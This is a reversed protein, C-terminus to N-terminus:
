AAAMLSNFLCCSCFSESASCAWAECCSRSLTSRSDLSLSKCCCSAESWSSLLFFSSSLAVSIWASRSSTEASPAARCPARSFASASRRLCCSSSRWSSREWTSASACSSACRWSCAWSSSLSRRPKCLSAAVEAPARWRSSSASRCRTDSSSSALSRSHAASHSARRWSSLCNFSLCASSTLSSCRRSDSDDALWSSKFRFAAASSSSNRFFICFSISSAREPPTCITCRRLSSCLSFSVLIYSCCDTSSVLSRSFSPLDCWSRM